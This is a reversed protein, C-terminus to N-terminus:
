HHIPILATLKERERGFEFAPELLGEKTWMTGRKQEASCVAWNVGKAHLMEHQEERGKNQLEKHSYHAQALAMLSNREADKQRWLFYNEVEVPDPITFVRSDFIGLPQEDRCRNFGRTALAASLSCMKQVNGDFWAETEINDFDTLLVSIEDSQMYALKVGQLNQCVDVMASKMDSAFGFDYPKVCGRTLTHFANGDLRIITYTRRPLMFRTRSEYQGKMRDGLSDRM